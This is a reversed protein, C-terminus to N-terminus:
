RARWYVRDEIGLDARLAAVDRDFRRADSHYGATPRLEPLRACWFRNFALMGLERLYKAVMSALATPLFSEGRACFRVEIRAGEPGWRYVSTARGEGYVEVLPDPFRRQLLPGYHNRGGHKDCVALVSAAPLEALADALLDLTVLSLAESKLAHRELLDNWERPFV